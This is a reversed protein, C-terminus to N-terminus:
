LGRIQRLKEANKFIHTSTAIGQAIIMCLDDPRLQLPLHHMFAATTSAASRFPNLSSANTPATYKLALALLGERAGERHFLGDLREASIPLVGAEVKQILRQPACLNSSSSMRTLPLVGDGAM